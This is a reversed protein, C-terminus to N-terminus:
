SRSSMFRKEEADDRGRELNRRQAATARDGPPSALCAGSGCQTRSLGPVLVLTGEHYCSRPEPHVLKDVRRRALLPAGAVSCDISVTRPPGFTVTADSELAAM